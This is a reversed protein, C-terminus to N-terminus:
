PAPPPTAALRLSWLAEPPGTLVLGARFPPYGVCYGRFFVQSWGAPLTVAVPRPEKGYEPKGAKVKLPQGNLFWRMYGQSYGYLQFELATEAPVHMWTAGYWLQGGGGLHIRTDLEAVSELRWRVKGPDRWYGQVQSGSYSAALDVKGDDPPYAAAEFFKRVADKVSGHPDPSFKETGPGGFPGCVRWHRVLLDKDLPTFALPAWSGPYLRAESPEDYTERSASGDANAWWCKGHGNFTAEFNAMTRLEGSLPPLGPIAARPLAATLVFGKGDAALLHQLKVGPVPGVHAFSVAGVPTRYTIPNAPGPGQWTPYLGLVAPQVQGNDTFLGFIFRVDGPRGDPSRDPKAAPDGQIYFSLTDAQRDHTFMRDLPQLPKPDLKAALRLQWRLYLHDRDYLGRLEVTQDKSAQFNVPECSEWGTLSGDLVAGGTAPAFRAVKAGGAGGRLTLAIEPPVAIQAATIAVQAQLQPLPQVPNERLSWGEARFVMPTYKGVGIYIRGDAPHPYVIGAFFEGPLAYLGVSNSDFRRGDPFLTDVYLGQETYLLIGCRSQDIVSLLGNIPKQLHIAAYTEGPKAHGQLAKRGTRWLLRYGGKGDPVYRSVKEQAGENASFNRGGRATVYFGEALSGDAMAWDSVYAQSLENGGSLATATGAARAAFVPDTFVKEWAPFVPNGHADFSAPALRWADPGGQNLALLSLDELWQNGHYRLLWGPMALPTDRYEEEQVQGDGNADHWAWYQWKRDPQQKRIIAAALLWRDGALRYVNYSRACALYSRGERRIFRPHDFDPAAPDNGVNPWVADVTWKGTAYDLKFRTLWHQQGGVYIQSPDAPDPAFGDNAHTQLNLFERQLAGSDASWESVRNPGGQEVVLLRDQGDPTTWTALKAPSIFTEPDYTGPTQAARRGFSRLPKGAASYQYVKNAQSDSLYVRGQGDVEVDAPTVGAPVAFLKQWAGQPVGAALPVFSVQWGAGAAHLAYLRGGRAALGRPQPVPLKALLRGDAGDHVSITDVREAPDEVYSTKRKPLEVIRGGQAVYVFTKGAAAERWCALATVWGEPLYVNARQARGSGFPKGDARYVYKPGGDTSFSWVTEGDTCTSSGGGAGGSPFSRLCQEYGIPQKLDMLPNNRGNELYQYYFVAVGNAGVDVDAFPSGCPDGGFPEPKNWQEPAPQWSSAGGVFRPTVSHFEGDVQWQRAPMCIGKVGYTGPPVPMFNDDLGNWQASFRGQNEATVTFPEGCVFQSVIWDPNQADVIALTVRWTQPLPGATPLQFRVPVGGAPAAAAVTALALWAVSLLSLLRFSHM